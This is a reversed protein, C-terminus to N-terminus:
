RDCCFQAGIARPCNGKGEGDDNSREKEKPTASEDTWIVGFLLAFTVAYVCCIESAFLGVIGVCM